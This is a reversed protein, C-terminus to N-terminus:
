KYFDGKTTKYLVRAKEAELKLTKYTQRLKIIEREKLSLDVSIKDELVGMKKLVNFLYNISKNSGKQKYNWFKKAIKKLGSRTVHNLNLKIKLLDDYKWVETGNLKLVHGNNKVKAIIDNLIINYNETIASVSTQTRMTEKTEM